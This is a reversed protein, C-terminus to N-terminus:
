LQRRHAKLDTGHSQLGEMLDASSTASPQVEIGSHSLQLTWRKNPLQLEKKAIKFELQYLEDVYLVHGLDPLMVHDYMSSTPLNGKPLFTGDETCFDHYNDDSWTEEESMRRPKTATQLLGNSKPLTPPKPPCKYAIAPPSKSAPILRV